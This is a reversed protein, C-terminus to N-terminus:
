IKSLKSSLDTSLIKLGHAIRYRSSRKHRPIV